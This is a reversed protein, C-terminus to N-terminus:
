LTLTIVPMFVDPINRSDVIGVKRNFYLELEEKLNFSAEWDYILSPDFVALFDIDSQSTEKRALVSGYLKLTSVGHKAALALIQERNEIIKDILYM